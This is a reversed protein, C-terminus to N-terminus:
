PNRALQLNAPLPSVLRYGLTRGDIKSDLQLWEGSQSYWLDIHIKEAELRYHKAKVPSGEIDIVEDDEYRISVPTYEGTQANLLQTQKLMQPDWYAFTMVCSPLSTVHTVEDKSSNVQMANGERGGHVAFRKGNVRTSSDIKQLCGNRWVEHNTHRYHYVTVFLLKVRLDADIQVSERDGQRSVAFTHYGIPKGDLSVRFRWSQSTSDAFAAQLPFLLMVLLITRWRHKM